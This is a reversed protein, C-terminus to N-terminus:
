LKLDVSELGSVEREFGMRLQVVVEPLEEAFLHPYVRVARALERARVEVQNERGQM